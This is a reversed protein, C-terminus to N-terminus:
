GSSGTPLGSASAALSLVGAALGLASTAFVSFSTSMGSASTALVLASTAFGLTYFFAYQCQGRSRVVAGGFVVCKHKNINLKELLAVSGLAFLTGERHARRMVNGPHVETARHLAGGFLEKSKGECCARRQHFSVVVCVLILSTM